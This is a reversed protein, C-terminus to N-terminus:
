CLGVDLVVVKGLYTGWNGYHADYLKIPIIPKHCSSPIGPHARPFVSWLFNEKDWAKPMLFYKRQNKSLKTLFNIENRTQYGASNYGGFDFKVVNWRDLAFVIRDAGTGLYKWGEAEAM